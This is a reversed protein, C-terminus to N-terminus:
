RRDPHGMHPARRGEAVDELIAVIRSNTPQDKVAVRLARVGMATGMGAADRLFLGRQRAAHIIHAATDGSDPLHCLLFNAVGPLVEWGLRSELAAKLAKRLAHTEAWRETYYDEAGLAHVAAVQGALGVAWPPSWRRLEEAAAAHLALYAVRLGSLAYVKSMSKCVVLNLLTGTLEEVSEGPGAYESYTEDVWVRTSPPVRRLFWELELRPLHVGTPSNPNVLIVMDYRGRSVREELAQLDVRYGDERHLLFRRAGCGAVHDLVHAYEGYMPDLILVRSSPNLWRTLALFILDSSGGGVVVQEPKLGRVGAITRVLGECATPPSTQVLWPLHERLADVVAPAPPFWADLVDANIVDHRRSLDDFSEGIAGFFAGGHYCPAPPEAPVSLGWEVGRTITRTVASRQAVASRIQEMDAHLVHYRVAGSTVVDGTPLLGVKLYLPLVQERGLAVVRRGGAEAVYRWAAYMLLPALRGSRYAESVTLLRIEFVSEDCAFPLRGRDLYKDISLPGGPPTISVFGAVEDGHGVVINVNFSDLEDQLLGLENEPHQALESAYVRHRLRFIADRQAPSALCIRLSM